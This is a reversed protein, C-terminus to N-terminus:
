DHRWVMKRQLRCRQGVQGATIRARIRFNNPLDEAPAIWFVPRDPEIRALLATVFAAPLAGTEADIGAAGIEHLQGLAM